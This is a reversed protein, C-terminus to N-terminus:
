NQVRNLVSSQFSSVACWQSGIISQCYTPLGNSDFALLDNDGYAVSVKLSCLNSGTATDCQLNFAGLRMREGLVEEGTATPKTQSLDVASCGSGAAVTDRWLAHQLRNNQADYEGAPTNANVQTNLRYSYRTTGICMANMTLKNPVTGDNGGTVDYTTTGTQVTANTFQLQQSLQDTLGRAVEQTRGTVVGKYYLKGIEILATTTGLFIISFVMTAILLELITFGVQHNKLKM